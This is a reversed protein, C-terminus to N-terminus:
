LQSGRDFFFDPAGAAPLPVISRVRDMHFVLDLECVNEFCKDLSEVFVQILDLIGLESESEDVCFIFYLTAYHRYVIRTGEGWPGGEVFNCLKDDRKSIVKFVDHMYRQQEADDQCAPLLRLAMTDSRVAQLLDACHFTPVRVLYEYFKSLRPKGQNNIIFVGNIM